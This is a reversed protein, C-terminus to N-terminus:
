TCTKNEEVSDWVLLNDPTTRQPGRPTVQPKNLSQEVCGHWTKGFQGGFTLKGETFFGSSWGSLM